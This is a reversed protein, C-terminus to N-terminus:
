KLYYSRTIGEYNFDNKEYYHRALNNNISTDTDFRTIGKKFLYNKLAKMCKTGIGKNIINGNVYIWRLYAMKENVYHIECGGVQEDNLIFDIYQQNGKTLEYSKIEVESNEIKNIISSYYVNEHEITFNFEKLLDEVCRHKEFLKGHRAFESMGFYHFFAYIIEEKKFYNLAENLLITGVEKNNFYLNRIIQYYSNESINGEENFVFSSKGYQIFGLLKDEEYVGKVILEKFLIRGEGDIDNLFSEKWKSFSSKFFFPTIFSMHYNYVEKLNTIEKLVLM